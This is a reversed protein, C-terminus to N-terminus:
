QASGRSDKGFMTDIAELGVHLPALVVQLLAEGHASSEHRSNTIVLGRFDRSYSLFSTACYASNGGLYGAQVLVHQFFEHIRRPLSHTALTTNRASALANSLKSISQGVM